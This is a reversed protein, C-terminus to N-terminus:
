AEKELNSETMAQTATTPMAWLRQADSVKNAVTMAPEAHVSANAFRLTATCSDEGRHTVPRMSAMYWVTTNALMASPLQDHPWKAVAAPTRSASVTEPSHESTDNTAARQNGIAISSVPESSGRTRPVSAGGLTSILEVEPGITTTM